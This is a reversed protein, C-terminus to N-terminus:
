EKLVIIFHHIPSQVGREKLVMVTYDHIIWGSLPAANSHNIAWHQNNSADGPYWVVFIDKSVTVTDGHEYKGETNIRKAVTTGALFYM